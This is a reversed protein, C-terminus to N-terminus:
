FAGGLYLITALITASIVGAVVSFIMKETNTRTDIISCYEENAIKKGIDIKIQTTFENEVM